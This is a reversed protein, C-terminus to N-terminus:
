RALGLIKRAEDATAIDRGLDRAIRVAAEVLQANNKAVEGNPLTTNDEAGVRLINCGLTMALVMIQFYNKSRATAYWKANPFLRKGEDLVYLLQRPTADQVGNGDGSCYNIVFSMNRDFFGEEALRSANNLFSTDWIELELIIKRKITAPIFKKLFSPPSSFIAWHGAPGTMELTGVTTPIMDPKPDTELLLTMRQEESCPIWEKTVPNYLPGMNGTIEILMDSKERILKFTQNYVNKDPTLFTTKEDRGHVHVFSAGAQYCRFADEAIEKPTIPVYIGGEGSTREGNPAVLIILKEQLTSM